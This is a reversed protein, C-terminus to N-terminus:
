PAEVARLRAGERIPPLPWPNSEAERSLKSTPRLMTALNLWRSNRGARSILRYKGVVADDVNLM